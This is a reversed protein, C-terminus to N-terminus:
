DSRSVAKSAIRSPRTMIYYATALVLSTHLIVWVAHPAVGYVVFVSALMATVAVWKVRLPIVRHESFARLSPGFRPHELLWCQLQPSSKGFAWVAVLLFPTTPLVPVFAGVVGLATCLAGITWYLARLPSPQRDCTM